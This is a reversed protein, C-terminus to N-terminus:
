SGGVWEVVSVHEGISVTLVYGVCHVKKRVRECKDEKVKWM